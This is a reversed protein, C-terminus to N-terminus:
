GKKLINKSRLNELRESMESLRLDSHAGPSVRVALSAAPDGKQVQDIQQKTRRYAERFPVGQAALEVASDTAFADATIAAEMRERNFAIGDVLGPVIALAQVAAKMGRILPAKTFQLDRHYGSPLSLISQIEHVAADVVAIRARLLEVVDPNRKNPMISSGTTYQDPLRVFGFEASTFLSLDWALRQVDRLAHGAAQLAMVEFKGRSNQANVPNIQMRGFGLEEGVGERDLPLNVGYGAATGLPNCDLVRSVSVAFELDDIFAEALGAMWMGVSSPVAPQLHTYGPMAVDQDRTARDLCAQAISAVHSEMESMVHKLFLRVAVQVQDNRSRGTHVKGGLDASRESLYHEIASHGDEFREDLVFRGDLFDKALEDLWACLQGADETTMLDIRALGNVHAQTAQIDFLFLERDLIVDEGALFAMIRDDITHGAGSQWIPKTM